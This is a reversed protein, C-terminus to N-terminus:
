NGSRDRQRPAGPRINATRGPRRMHRLAHVGRGERFSRAHVFDDLRRSRQVMIFTAM